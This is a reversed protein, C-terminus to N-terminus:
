RMGEMFMFPDDKAILDGEQLQESIVESAIDSSVGIQITIEEYTIKEGDQHALYVFHRGNREQLVRNPLQLVDKEYAVQINAVATMGPKVAADPDLLQVTVVFYVVGQESSGVQGLEVVEGRYEQDLIADLTVSVPQGIRVQHLDMESVQLDIFLRTLDDIRFAKQGPNVMDGPLVDVETVSGAFPATVQSQALTAQALTIRTQAITIDDEDPGDKLDALAEEFDEIKAKALAITAESPSTFDTLKKQAADFNAQALALDANYQAIEEETWDALYWNLIALKRNRNLKAGELDSLAQAKEPDETPDGSTDDYRGQLHDVHEQALLYDARAANVQSQNGRDYKLRDVDNQADELAEQADLVAKEAEAIAVQSPNSLDDLTQRANELDEEMQAIQLPETDYLNDLNNQANILDVQAQLITQSLSTQDLSALVEDAKVVQGPRANVLGVKGSTEWSIIANQASRVTGTAGIMVTLPGRELKVLDNKTIGQATGSSGVGQCGVLMSAILLISIGIVRRKM